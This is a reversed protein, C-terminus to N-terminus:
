EGYTTCDYCVLDTDSEGSEESIECWWGCDDCLFIQSDLYQLFELNDELHQVEYYELASYLTDCTGQLSQIVQDWLDTQM